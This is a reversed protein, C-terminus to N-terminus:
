SDGNESDSSPEYRLIRFCYFVFCVVYVTLPHGFLCSNCYATNTRICVHIPPLPAGFTGSHQEWICHEVMRALTCAPISYIAHARTHLRLVFLVVLYVYTSVCM